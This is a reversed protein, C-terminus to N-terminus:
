TAMLNLQRSDDVVRIYVRHRMVDANGDWDTGVVTRGDSDEAPIEAYIGDPMFTLSYIRDPDFGLARVLDAIQTQTITDQVGRVAISM